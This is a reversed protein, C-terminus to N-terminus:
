EPLVLRVQGDERATSLGRFLSRSPCETLEPCPDEVIEYLQLSAGPVARGSATTLIGRAYAAGPLSIDALEVVGAEDRQRMDVNRVTCFAALPDGPALELDYIVPSGAFTEDLLIVFRGSPDTGTSSLQQNDAVSRDESSLTQRFSPAFSATVTTQYAPEGKATFVAGGVAMRRPLTITALFGGQNSGIDIVQDYLAAHDTNPLPEVSVVYTRNEVTSGPILSLQANGQDDTFTLKSFTAMANPTLGPLYTTVRVTAGSVNVTNGTRDMGRIPLTYVVPTGHSPMQLPQELVIPATEGPLPDPIVLDSVRLTPVSGEDVPMAILDLSPELGLPIRLRFSGQSDTLAVSSRRAATALPHDKGLAFVQMGAMGRGVADVVRGTVVKHLAPDGVVWTVDVGNTVVLSFRVPPALERASTDAPMTSAGRTPVVSVEYPEESLPVTLTFSPQGEPLGGLSTVTLMYDPRGPITSPKIVSVQADISLLPNCEGLPLDGCAMVVRGKITGTPAFGLSRAWGDPAVGLDPIETPALEPWGDLPPVLVAAFRRDPPNGWCIGEDCSEGPDCDASTSCMPEYEPTEDLPLCGWCLPVALALLGPLWRDDSIYSALMM